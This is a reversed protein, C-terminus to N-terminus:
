VGSVRRGIKGQGTMRGAAQDDQVRDPLREVM